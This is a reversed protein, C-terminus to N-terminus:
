MNSPLNTVWRLDQISCSVYPVLNDDHTFSDFNCYMVLAVYRNRFYHPLENFNRLKWRAYRSWQRTGLWSPRSKIEEGFRLIVYAFWLPFSVPSVLLFLWGLFKCRYRIADAFRRRYM